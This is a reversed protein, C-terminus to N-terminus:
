DGLEGTDTSQEEQGVNQLTLRKQVSVVQHFVAKRRTRWASQFMQRQLVTAKGSSGVSPLGLPAWLWVVWLLLM